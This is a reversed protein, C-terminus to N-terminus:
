EILILTPPTDTSEILLGDRCDGTEVFIGKPVIFVGGDIVDGINVSKQIFDAIDGVTTRKNSYQNPGFQTDVIAVFDGSALLRKVPLQSIKISAM